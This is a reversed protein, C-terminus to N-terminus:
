RSCNDFIINLEDGALDKSLLNLQRLTKMNLSAVNHARKKGVGKHYAHAYMHEKVEGNPYELAHNVVGLNYVSLPSYSYTVGPQEQNYVPLEMNQDYDVVFTYQRDSFEVGAKADMVAAEVREIYLARQSWYM